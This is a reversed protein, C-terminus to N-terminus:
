APPPGPTRRRGLRGVVVLDAGGDVVEFLGVFAVIEIRELPVEAGIELVLDVRVGPMAVVTPPQGDVGGDDGAVPRGDVDGVVEAAGVLGVLVVEV